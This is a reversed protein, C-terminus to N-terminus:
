GLVLAICLMARDIFRRHAPDDPALRTIMWGVSALCRALLLADVLEPDSPRTEAYGDLLAQRLAPYAPEYLNQSLATGLDYARFGIGSDDFDILSLSGGNVFVNERLVDAHIPGIDAQSEAHSLRDRLFARADHFRAAEAPSLQPHDWFRGWRPARGIFGAADWRPLTFTPPPTLRDTENHLRALLRGIAAYLRAQAEAKGALTTGGKGVPIGEIWSLASAHHDPGISHLLDGNKTPLPVPVPLGAEALAACWWLESRIVGADRYGPRHLRLAAFRGDPLAIQFVRNEREALLHLIRGDWAAAATEAQIM